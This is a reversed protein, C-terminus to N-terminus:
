RSSLRFHLKIYHPSTVLYIFIFCSLIWCNEHLLSRLLRNYINKLFNSLEHRIIGKRTVGNRTKIATIITVASMGRHHLSGNNETIDTLTVSTPIRLSPTNKLSVCLLNYNFKLYM